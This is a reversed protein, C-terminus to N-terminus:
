TALADCPGYSVAVFLGGFSGFGSVLWVASCRRFSLLRFLVINGVRWVVISSESVGVVVFVFLCARLSVISFGASVLKLLYGVGFSGSRGSFRVGSSSIGPGVSEVFVISRLEVSSGTGVLM